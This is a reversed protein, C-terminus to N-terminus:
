KLILPLFVNQSVEFRGTETISVDYATTCGYAHPDWHEVKVYYTGDRRAGWALRSAPWNDPDDDNFALLTTGNTDYLSLMTDAHGGTNATALTYTVGATATFKLWDRDGAAHFNHSQQTGNTTIRKAAAYSNDPEKGDASTTCIQVTHQVDGNGGAYTSLNGAYDRARARFYYTHGNQGVFRYHDDSTNTLLNTWTSALGDRYQVDYSAIGSLNDWSDWWNVWFDLFPADGYMQSVSASVSPPTRDLGIGYSGWGAYNGAWDYAYIYLAGGQQESISSTDWDYNWGDSPDWDDQLVVWNSNDWDADHWYFRVHRIGSQGDSVDTTITQLNRDLWADHDPSVIRATPPTGDVFVRLNYFYGSGGEVSSYERVKIYYDGNDPLRFGLKSDLSTPEDDNFALVTSGDSDLLYIYSDLSSGINRADLDIVVRQDATGSFRYYDYDGSPCIYASRTQGLSIPTAQGPTDNPENADDCTVFNVQLDHQVSVSRGFPDQGSFTTRLLVASAGYAQANGVVEPPLYIYDTWLASGNAPVSIDNDYPGIPDSVPTEGDLLTFRASRQTIHASTGASESFTYTIGAYEGSNMTLPDPMASASLNPTPQDQVYFSRQATWGSEGYSNWAKVHWYYPNSSTALGSRTWQTAEIWGSSQTSSLSGGWLEVYYKDGNGTWQLTVSSGPTFVTGDAPNIPNPTSPASPCSGACVRVSSAGNRLGQALSNIDGADHTTRGCVGHFDSHECVIVEYGSAVRISEARDNFDWHGLDYITRDSPFSAGNWDGLDFLTFYAPTRKRVRMSSAQNNGIPNDSLNSDSGNFVSHTGQYNDDVFLVASWDGLMQISEADDNGFGANGLSPVDNTFLMCNSYGTNRCLNVGDGSAGDCNLHDYVRFSSVSDNLGVGGDYSNNGFDSDDGNLCTSPEGFGGERYLKVSWGSPIHISSAQDNIGLSGIDYNGPSTRQVYGDNEGMGGCDYNAHRYLIVGGSQPCSTGGDPEIRFRRPSAWPGPTYPNCPKCARVSWYLNTNDWQSGFQRTVSTGGQGEDFLTTGGSDMDPVTKVRFTYGNPTCNSPPGWSFNVTRDSSTHVYGDNPANLSPASCTGGPVELIEIAANGNNALAQSLNSYTYYREKGKATSNSYWYIGNGNWVNPDYSISWNNDSSFGKVVVFHGSTYSYYRQYHNSPDSNAVLYDTGPPIYSMVVPAIVIHGRNNVADRVADMGYIITHNVNWHTLANSLQTLSTWGCDEGTIYNRIDSINVWQNNKAFQIAMAVTTPGCNASACTGSDWEGQYRYWDYPADINGQISILDENPFPPVTFSFPADPSLKTVEPQTPDVLFINQYAPTSAVQRLVLQGSRHLSEVEFPWSTSEITTYLEQEVGNDLNLLSVTGTLTSYIVWGGDESWAVDYVNRSAESLRHTRGDALYTLWLHGGDELNVYVVSRSDPSVAYSALGAMANGTLPRVPGEQSDILWLDFGEDVLLPCVLGSGDPLWVPIPLGGDAFSANEAIIQRPGGNIDAIILQGEEVYALKSGDPSWSVPSRLAPNSTFQTKTGNTVDMLWIDQPTPATGIQATPVSLYALLLGNPSLVPASDHGTETLHQLGSDHVDSLWIDGGYVFPVLVRESALRPTRPTSTATSPVLKPQPAATSQSQTTVHPSLVAAMDTAQQLKEKDEAQLLTAPLSDLWQPYLGQPAPLLAQWEGDPSRRALIHIPGSLPTAESQWAAVGHAWEGEVDVQIPAAQYRPGWYDLYKELAAQMAQQARAQEAEPPLDEPSPPTVGQSSIDPGSPQPTSTAVPTPSPPEGPPAARLSAPPGALPWLASFTLVFVLLLRYALALHPRRSQM